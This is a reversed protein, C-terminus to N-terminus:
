SAREVVWLDTALQSGVDFWRCDMMFRGAMGWMLGWSNDIEFVPVSYTAMSFDYGTIVCCHGGIFGTQATPLPLFQKTPDWTGDEFYSPVSFGYVIPNNHYLATRMPAGPSGVIVKSYTIAKEKAGAAYVSQPIVANFPGPNADSYPWLTEPPAGWTVVGKIGDRIQAGTDTAYNGGIKRANGYIFLRSPTSAHEGQVNEQYEMVRAVGNGVCGSLQLQDYIGPMGSVLRHTLPLAAPAMVQVREHYLYDRHDPQDRVWGKRTPNRLITAAM